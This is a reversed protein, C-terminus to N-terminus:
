PQLGPLRDAEAPGVALGRHDDRAQVAAADLDDGAVDGLGVPRVGDDVVGVASSGDAANASDRRSSV